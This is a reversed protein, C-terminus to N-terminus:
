GARFSFVAFYRKRASRFSFRLPSCCYPCCSQRNTAAQYIDSQFRDVINRGALWSVTDGIIILVALAVIGIVLEGRRPLRYGLYEAVSGRSNAALFLLIVQVTASVFIFLVLARGDQALTAVEGLKLGYWGSLAIIGSLQGSLLAFAGIAFTAFVGFPKVSATM